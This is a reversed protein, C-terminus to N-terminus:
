KVEEVTLVNEAKVYFPRGETTMFVMVGGVRWTKRCRHGFEKVKISDRPEKLLVKYHM